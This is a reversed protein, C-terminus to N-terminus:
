GLFTVLLAGWAVIQAVALFIALGSRFATRPIPSKRPDRWHRIALFLATPATAFTVPWFTLMPLVAVGLAVSDWLTRRRELRSEVGEDGGAELCAPCLHRGGLPFDCLSCL